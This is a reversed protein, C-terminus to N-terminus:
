RVIDWEEVGEPLASLVIHQPPVDSQTGIVVSSIQKDDEQKDGEGLKLNRPTADQPTPESPPTSPDVPAPFRRLQAHCFQSDSAQEEFTGPAVYSLIDPGTTDTFAVGHLLRPPLVRLTKTTSAITGQPQPKSSSTSVPFRRPPKSTIDAKKSPVANSKHLKPAISVETNTTLLLANGKSQPDLGAIGGESYLCVLSDNRSVSSM